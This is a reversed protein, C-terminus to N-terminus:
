REPLTLFPVKVLMSYHITKWQSRSTSPFFNFGNWSAPPGELVMVAAVVADMAEGGQSLVDYGKLTIYFFYTTSRIFLICLVSVAHLAKALSAKYLMQQEKTSGAKSMTGAGGHIVLIYSKRPIQSPLLRTKNSFPSPWALWSDPHQSGPQPSIPPAARKSSSDLQHQESVANKGVQRPLKKTTPGSLSWEGTAWSELMIWYKDKASNWLINELYTCPKSMTRWWQVYLRTFILAAFISNELRMMSLSSVFLFISRPYLIALNISIRVADSCEVSYQNVLSSLLAVRSSIRSPCELRNLPCLRM